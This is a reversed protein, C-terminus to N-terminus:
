FSLIRHFFLVQGSKSSAWIFFFLSPLCSSVGATRALQEHLRRALISPIRLHESLSFLVNLFLFFVVLLPFVASLVLKLLFLYTRETPTPTWMYWYLDPQIQSWLIQTVARFCAGTGLLVKSVLDTIFISFYYVSNSLFHHGHGWKSCRGRLVICWLCTLMTLITYVSESTRKESKDNLSINHSCCKRGAASTWAADM